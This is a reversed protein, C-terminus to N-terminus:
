PKRRAAQAKRINRAWASKQAATPKDAEPVNRRPKARFRDGGIHRPASGLQKMLGRADPSDAILRGGELHAHEKSILWKQTDWSGNSRRGSVREIGGRRGVDQTRFLQFERKPRVEVHFFDGHGSAGPKSRRHGEPQAIARARPSMSRWPRQAKKINKRAATRPRATAM